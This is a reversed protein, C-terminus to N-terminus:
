PTLSELENKTELDDLFRPIIGQQEPTPPVAPRPLGKFRVEEGRPVLRAPLHTFVPLFSEEGLRAIHLLLPSARRNDDGKSGWSVVERDPKGFPLPIGFGARDPVGSPTEHDKAEKAWHHDRQESPRNALGYRRRFAMMWGGAHVMAEDWSEFIERGLCVRTGASLHSWEPTRSADRGLRLLSGIGETLQDRSGPAEFGGEAATVVLSGFGRRSRTGVAGLHLWAKLTQRLLEDTEEGLRRGPRLRLGLEASSGADLCPRVMEGKWFCGPGALYHIPNVASGLRLRKETTAEPESGKGIGWLKGLSESSLARGWSRYIRKDEKTLKRGGGQLQVLLASAQETSGFVECEAERVRAEDGQFHGGAVARFWWRLQGRVSAGRWECDKTPDAGGLFGPTVLELSLRIPKM